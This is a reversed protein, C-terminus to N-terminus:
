KILNENNLNSNLIYNNIEDNSHQSSFINSINIDSDDKLINKGIININDLTNGNLM